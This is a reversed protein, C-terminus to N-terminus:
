NEVEEVVTEVVEEAEGEIITNEATAEVEVVETEVTAKVEKKEVCSLVMFSLLAIFLLKKM